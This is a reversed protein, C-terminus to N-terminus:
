PGRTGSAEGGERLAAENAFCLVSSQPTRRRAAGHHKQFLKIKLNKGVTSYKPLKRKEREREREGEKAEEPQWAPADRLAGDAKPHFAPKMDRPGRCRAPARGHPRPAPSPPWAATQEPHRELGGPNGRWTGGVPRSVARSGIRRPQTGRPSRPRGAGRPEQPSGAGEARRGTATPSHTHRAGRGRRVLDGTMPSPVRGTWQPKM